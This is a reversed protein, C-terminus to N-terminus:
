DAQLGPHIGPVLGNHDAVRQLLDLLRAVDAPSLGALLDEEQEDALQEARRVLDRAKPTLHVAHARRDSPHPRREVLGREQLSDVLGVMVNRHVGLTDALQQQSMGGGAGLAVLLGFQSPRLGLPALREAFKQASRSGIQSVLFSVRRSLPSRDPTHSPM